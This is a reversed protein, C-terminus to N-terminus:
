YSTQVNQVIGTRKNIYIYTSRTRYVLQKSYFDENTRDPPGYLCLVDNESSNSAIAVIPHSSFTGSATLAQYIRALTFDRKLVSVSVGSIIDNKKNKVTLFVSVYGPDDQTSEAYKWSTMPLFTTPLQVTLFQRETQRNPM